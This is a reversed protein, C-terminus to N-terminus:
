LFLYPRLKQFLDDTIVPIKKLDELTTFSGHQQRYALILWAVKGRFYPHVKLEELGVTNLDMRKILAPEDVLHPQVLSFVSDSIGFVERVQHPHVFGGLKARYAVIRGALRAGIGPLAMWDISDASNIRVSVVRREPRAHIPYVPRAATERKVTRKEAHVAEVRVWPKLREWEPQRLGYIRGLDEATSFRGGKARFNMITRINKERLGLDKWGKESLTNPDFPFLKGPTNVEEKEPSADTAPSIFAPPATEPFLEPLWWAVLVLGTMVLIGNRERRSFVLSFWNSGKNM